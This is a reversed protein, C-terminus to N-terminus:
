IKIGCKRVIKRVKKVGMVVGFKRRDLVKEFAGVWDKRRGGWRTKFFTIKAFSHKKECWKKAKEEDGFIKEENGLWVKWKGEELFTEPGIGLFDWRACGVKKAERIMEWQLLWPAMKEREQNGSAGYYYVGEKGWFTSIAMALFKEGSKVFWLRAVDDKGLVRLIRQYYDIEHTWFGDREETEKNLKGFAEMELGDPDNTWGVELDAKLAKKLNRKGMTRMESKLEEESKKLDLQLTSLPQYQAHAGKWGRKAFWKKMKSVGGMKEVDWMPDIRLWVAKEKKAIKEGEELLLDFVEENEFDCVPGRHAYIWCGRKGLGHRM